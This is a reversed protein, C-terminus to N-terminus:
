EHQKKEKIKIKIFPHLCPVDKEDMKSNQM